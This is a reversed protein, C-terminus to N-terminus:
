IREREVEEREEYKVYTRCNHKHGRYKAHRGKRVTLVKCSPLYVRFSLSGVLWPFRTNPASRRWITNQVGDPIDGIDTRIM